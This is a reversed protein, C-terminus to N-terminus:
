RVDQNYGIVSGLLAGAIGAMPNVLFGLGGISAGLAANRLKFKKQRAESRPARSKGHRARASRSQMTGKERNCAICAPFLNNIHNTGGNARSRSHEVEWAGRARERGYNIFALKKHCIHCRGDTREYIQTLDDDSYQM